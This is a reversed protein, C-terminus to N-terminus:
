EQVAKSLRTPSLFVWLSTKAIVVVVPSEAQSPPRPVFSLLRGVYLHLTEVRFLIPDNSRSVRASMM